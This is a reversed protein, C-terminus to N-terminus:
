KSPRWVPLYIEPIGFGAFIKFQIVSLLIFVLVVINKKQCDRRANEIEEMRLNLAALSVVLGAKSKRELSNKTM